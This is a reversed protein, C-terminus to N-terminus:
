KAPAPVPKPAYKEPNLQRDWSPYRAVYPAVAKRFAPDKLRSAFRREFVARDKGALWVEAEAYTIEHDPAPAPRSKIGPALVPLPDIFTRPLADVFAKPALPQSALPGGARSWHEGRKADRGAGAPDVLRATGSEVFVEASKAGARLVVIGDTVSAELTPMRVRVGPPKAQTKLWGSPMVLAAPANAPASVMLLAEGALSLLTGNALEVQLQERGDTAVIDGDEVVVGPGLKYWTAGRLVLAGSDALTTVGVEAAQPAAALLCLSLPLGHRWFRM